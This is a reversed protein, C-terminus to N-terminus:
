DKKNWLKQNIKVSFFENAHWCRPLLDLEQREQYNSSLLELIENLREKSLRAVKKAMHPFYLNSQKEVEINHGHSIFALKRTAIRCLPQEPLAPYLRNVIAYEYCGGEQPMYIVGYGQPFMGTIQYLADVVKQSCAGLEANKNLVQYVKPLVKYNYSSKTSLIISTYIQPVKLLNGIGQKVKFSSKILQQLFQSKVKEDVVFQDREEKSNGVYVPVSLGDIIYKLTQKYNITLLKKREDVVLTRHPDETLDTGVLIAQADSHYIGIDQLLAAMLLPIKIQEIVRRQADLDFQAYPQEPFEALTKTIHSDTIEGDFLLKDLLRLSLIAKYLSKYYENNDTVKKGETPSILQITGLLQASKRNSEEFSDGETLDIIELCINLLHNHRDIRELKELELHNESVTEDTAMFSQHNFYHIARELMSDKLQSRGYIKSLLSHVQRTYHTQHQDPKAM